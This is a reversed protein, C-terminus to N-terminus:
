KKEKEIAKKAAKKKLVELEDDGKWVAKHNHRKIKLIRPGPKEVTEVKVTDSFTKHSKNLDNKLKKQVNM